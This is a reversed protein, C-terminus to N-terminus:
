DQLDFLGIGRGPGILVEPRLEVVREGVVGNDVRLHTRVALVASAVQLIRLGTPVSGTFNIFHTRPDDVLADGLDADAGTLLNIVGPPFGAEEVCEMFKHAIIPTKPSPKVIVTNGVVVPGVATGVLIALLFNWPPIVVGVGLPHLTTTNEEGPHDYTPSPEALALAQRAYYECFDIAEAVDAEAELWNKAAEYVEWAALERRRRRMVAALRVLARARHAMGLRSWSGYAEQAARFAQDIHAAGGMATRGVVQQPDCPDTSALMADTAIRESGIWLPYDRGLEGRVRELVREFSSRLDPDRWDSYPEPRYPEFLM